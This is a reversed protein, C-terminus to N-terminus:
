GLNALYPSTTTGKAAGTWGTSSNFHATGVYFSKGPNTNYVGYVKGYTSGSSLPLQECKGPAILVTSIGGQQPLTAYATYNGYACVKFTHATAASAPGATGALVAGALCSVAGIALSAKRAAKSTLKM